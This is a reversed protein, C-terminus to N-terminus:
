TWLGLTYARTSEPVDLDDFHKLVLAGVRHSAGAHAVTHSRFRRSWCTQSQWRASCRSHTKAYHLHDTTLRTGGPLVREQLVTQVGAQLQRQIPLRRLSRQVGGEHGDVKVVVLLLHATAPGLQMSSGTRTQSVCLEFLPVLLLGAGFAAPSQPASCSSCHENM